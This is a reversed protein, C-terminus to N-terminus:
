GCFVEPHQEYGSYPSAEVEKEVVTSATFFIEEVVQETKENNM